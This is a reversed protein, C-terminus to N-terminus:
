GEGETRATTSTSGRPYVIGREPILPADLNGRRYDAWDWPDLVADGTCDEYPCIQFRDWGERHERYEGDSYARECRPCWLHGSESPGFITLRDSVVQATV